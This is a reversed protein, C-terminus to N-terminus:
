VQDIMQAAGAVPPALKEMFSFHDKMLSTEDISNSISWKNLRHIDRLYLFIERPDILHQDIENFDQLVTYAWSSFVDFSDAEEEERKYITYFHFLLQMSDAKKLGSIEEIFDGINIISPLFGTTIKNKLARKVFIGARQSPLIFVVKEFTKTTKLIEDLTDNIFSQM